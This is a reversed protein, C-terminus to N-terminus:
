GAIMINANVNIGTTGAETFRSMTPSVAGVVLMLHLNLGSGTLEVLAKCNM